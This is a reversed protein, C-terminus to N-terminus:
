RSLLYNSQTSVNSPTQGPSPGMWGCLMKAWEDNTIRKENLYYIRQQRREIGYRYSSDYYKLILEIAERYKGQDISEIILKTRESGLRRGIRQTALILKSREIKGYDELLIEMREEMSREVFFLPATHMVKLLQDPIKCRGILRSEDEIWVPRQLDFAALQIAIENEFQENTPQESMGIMGFSSGRHQALEELDLVQEGMNRLSRLMQTKGSGTLGGIVYLTPLSKLSDLTWRRFAKYGGTLTITKIGVTRLLWAMSGSRMGGRWCHVRAENTGAYEKATSALDSLKPGVLKLGLSVAASQGHQKYVTGIVAREENSFLPLNIAGPIRGRSYEGPSRVDIIVGSGKLFDNILLNESM